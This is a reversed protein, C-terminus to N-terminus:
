KDKEHDNMRMLLSRLKSLVREFDLDMRWTGVEEPRGLSSSCFTNSRIQSYKLGKSRLWMNLKDQRHTRHDEKVWANGFGIDLNLPYEADPIIHFEVLQYEALEVNMRRLNLVVTGLCPFEREAGRIRITHDAAKCEIHGGLEHAEQVLDDVKKKTMFNCNAGTDGYGFLEVTNSEDIDGPLLVQIM